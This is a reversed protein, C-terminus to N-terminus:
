DVVIPLANSTFAGVMAVFRSTGAKTGTVLGASSVNAVSISAEQVAWLTVVNGHKDKTGCTDSTGDSYHCTTVIQITKGVKITLSKVAGALSVSTLTVPAAAVILPLVNSTKTGVVASINTTGVAVGKVTGASSIPAVAPSTSEWLPDVCGKISGDSYKCQATYQKSGGVVIQGQIMVCCLFLLSVFGRM